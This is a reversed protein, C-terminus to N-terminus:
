VNKIEVERENNIPCTLKSQLSKNIGFYNTHSIIEDDPNKEYVFTVGHLNTPVKRTVSRTHSPNQNFAEHDRCSRRLSSGM